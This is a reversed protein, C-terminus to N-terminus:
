GYTERCMIVETVFSTSYFGTGEMGMEKSVTCVTVRGIPGTPAIPCCLHCCFDMFRYTCRDAEIRACPVYPCTSIDPM